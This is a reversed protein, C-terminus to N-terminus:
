LKFMVHIANQEPLNRYTTKYQTCLESIVHIMYEVYYQARAAEGLKNWQDQEYRFWDDNKAEKIIDFEDTDDLRDTDVFRYIYYSAAETDIISMNVQDLRIVLNYRSRTTLVDFDNRRKVSKRKGVRPKQALEIRTVDDFYDYLLFCNLSPSLSVSNLKIINFSNRYTRVISNDSNMITAFAYRNLYVFSPVSAECSMMRATINQGQQLWQQWFLTMIENSLTHIETNPRITPIMDIGRIPTSRPLLTYLYRSCCALKYRVVPGGIKVVYRWIDNPIFM